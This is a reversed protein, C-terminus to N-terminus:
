VGEIGVVGSEVDCVARVFMTCGLVGYVGEYVLVFVFAVTCAGKAFVGELVWKCSCSSLACFSKALNFFCRISTSSCCM